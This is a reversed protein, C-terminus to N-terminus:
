RGKHVSEASHESRYRNIQLSFSFLLIIHVGMEKWFMQLPCVKQECFIAHHVSLQSRHTTPTLLHDKEKNSM